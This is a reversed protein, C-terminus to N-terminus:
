LYKNGFYIKIGRREVKAKNNFSYVLPSRYLLSPIFAQARTFIQIVM